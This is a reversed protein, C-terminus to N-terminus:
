LYWTMMGSLSAASSNAFAAAVAVSVGGRGMENAVAFARMRRVMVPGWAVPGSFGQHVFMEGPLYVSNRSVWANSSSDRRSTTSLVPCFSCNLSSFCFLWWKTRGVVQHPGPSETISPIHIGTEDATYWLPQNWIRRGIKYM